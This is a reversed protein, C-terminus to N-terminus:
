KQDGKEKLITRIRAINKKIQKIMGPSKPNTGTSIQANNKMLEIQLEKLKDLLDNESMGRLDKAKM